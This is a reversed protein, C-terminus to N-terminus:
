NLVLQLSQTSIFKHPRKVTVGNFKDRTKRCFRTKESFSLSNGVKIERKKGGFNLIWKIKSIAFFFFEDVQLSPALFVYIIPRSKM